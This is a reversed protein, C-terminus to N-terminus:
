FTECISFRSPSTLRSHWGFGDCAPSENRCCQQDSQCVGLFEDYSVREVKGTTIQVEKGTFRNGTKVIVQPIAWSEDDMMFDCVHGIIGDSARIHYGNVANTSRLHAAAQEHREGKVSISKSQEPFPALEIMPVNSM